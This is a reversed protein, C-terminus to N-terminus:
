RTTVTFPVRCGAAPYTDFSYDAGPTVPLPTTAVPGNPEGRIYTPPIRYTVEFGSGVFKLPGPVEAGGGAVGVFATPGLFVVSPGFPGSAGCLTSGSITVSTGVRGSAPCVTLTGFGGSHSGCSPNSSPGPTLSHPQSSTCGALTFVVAAVALLWCPTRLRLRSSVSPRSCLGNARPYNPGRGQASSGLAM